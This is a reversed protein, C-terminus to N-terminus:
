LKIKGRRKKKITISPSHHKVEAEQEDRKLERHPEAVKSPSLVVPVIRTPSIKLFYNDIAKLITILLTDRTTGHRLEAVLPEALTLRAGNQSYEQFFESNLFSELPRRCAKNKIDAPALEEIRSMVSSDVEVILGKKHRSRYFNYFMDKLKTLYISGDKDMSRIFIFAMVLKYSTNNRSVLYHALDAVPEPLLKILDQCSRQQWNQPRDYFGDGINAFRTEKTLAVSINQESFEGVLNQIFVQRRQPFGMEDILEEIATSVSRYGGLGWSKLGYTGRGVIEISKYSMIANHVYRDSIKNFYENVLRIGNAIERFHMPEENNELVVCAIDELNEGYKSHWRDYPLVVDGRIVLRGESKSILREVFARHFTVVPQQLPCKKQCHDSLRAAVVQVHFSETTEFDLTQLQQGPLDCSHCDCPVELLDDAEKFVADSEKLLLFQGLAKPYPAGPWDFEAQLVKSLTGPKILGGGQVVLHDLQQWFSNLRDLNAKIRLKDFGKKLIQRARERSIGFQQGLEELTPGKGETFCFREKFLQKDRQNKVCQNLFCEVMADYSSFDVADQEEAHSDPLCLSRVIGRLEKLSKRGFNNIRLLDSGPTLMVEGIIVMELYNLVQSTRVPIVLETLKTTARYGSHLQGVTVDEIKKSSFLPLLTLSSTDPPSALQEQISPLREAVGSGSPAFDVLFAIIERVTKRGCNNFALLTEKNLLNVEELSSCNKLLVNTARVSLGFSECLSRWDKSDSIVSPLTTSIHQNSPSSIESIKKQPACEIDSSENSENKNGSSKNAVTSPVLDPLEFDDFGEEKLKDWDITEIRNKAM